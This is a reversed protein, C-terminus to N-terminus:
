RPQVILSYQVTTESGITPAPGATVRLRRDGMTWEGAFDAAGTKHPADVVTWASLHDGYWNLVQEPTAGTATFSQESIAGSDNRTGIPETRPYRPLQDFAGGTFATVSPAPQAPRSTGSGCGVAVVALALAGALGALNHVTTRVHTM